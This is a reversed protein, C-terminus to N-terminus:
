SKLKFSSYYFPNSIDSMYRCAAVDGHTCSKILCMRDLSTILVLWKNQCRGLKLFVIKIRVIM